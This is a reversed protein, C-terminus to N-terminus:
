KITSGKEIENNMWQTLKSSSFIYTKEGPRTLSTYTGNLRGNQVLERIEEVDVRLYEAAEYISIFENKINTNKEGDYTTVSLASPAALPEYMNQTIMYSSIILAIAIITCGIIVSYNIKM